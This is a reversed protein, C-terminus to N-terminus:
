AEIPGEKKQDQKLAKEKHQKTEFNEKEEKLSAISTRWWNIIEEEPRAQLPHFHFTLDIFFNTSSNIISVIIGKM